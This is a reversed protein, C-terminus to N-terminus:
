VLNCILKKLPHFATKIVACDLGDGVLGSV